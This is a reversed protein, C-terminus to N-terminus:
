SFRFNGWHPLKGSTGSWQLLGIPFLYPDWPGIVDGGVHTFRLFM